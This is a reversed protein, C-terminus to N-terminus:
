DHAPPREGPHHHPDSVQGHSRCERPLGATITGTGSDLGRNNNTHTVTPTHPSVTAKSQGPKAGGLGFVYM